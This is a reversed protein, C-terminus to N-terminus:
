ISNESREHTTTQWSKLASGAHLITCLSYIQILRRLDPINSAPGDACRYFHVRECYKSFLNLLAM